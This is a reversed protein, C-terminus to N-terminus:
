CVNIDRLQKFFSSKNYFTRNGSICVGKLYFAYRTGNCIEGIVVKINRSGDLAIQVVVDVADVNPYGQCKSKSPVILLNKHVVKKLDIETM